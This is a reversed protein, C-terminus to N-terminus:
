VDMLRASSTSGAGTTGDQRNSTLLGPSQTITFDQGAISVDVKSAGQAVTGLSSSGRYRSFLEFAEADPDEVEEGYANLVNSLNPTSMATLLMFLMSSSEIYSRKTTSCHQQAASVFRFCWSEIVHYGHSKHFAFSGANAVVLHNVGVFRPM